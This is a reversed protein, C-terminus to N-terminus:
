TLNGDEAFFLYVQKLGILLLIPGSWIGAATWNVDHSLLINVYTTYILIYIISM